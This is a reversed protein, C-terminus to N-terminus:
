LEKIDKRLVYFGKRKILNSQTVDGEVAFHTPRNKEFKMWIRRLPYVIKAILVDTASKSGALHRIEKESRGSYDLPELFYIYPDTATKIIFEEDKKIIDAINKNTFHYGVFEVYNGKLLCGQM